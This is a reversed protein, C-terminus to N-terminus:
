NGQLIFVPNLTVPRRITESYCKTLHLMCSFTCWPCHIYADNWSQTKISANQYKIKLNVIYMVIVQYLIEILLIFTYWDVITITVVVIVVIIVIVIIIITMSIVLPPWVIDGSLVKATHALHFQGRTYKIMYERTIDWAVCFTHTKKGTM